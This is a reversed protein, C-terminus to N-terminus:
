NKNDSGTKPIEFNIGLVLDKPIIEKLYDWFCKIDEDKVNSTIKAGTFNEEHIIGKEKSWKSFYKNLKKNKDEYFDDPMVIRSFGTKKGEYKMAPVYSYMGNIQKDFTAGFYLRRKIYEINEEEHCAMNLVIDFYLGMNKLSDDLPVYYEKSSKIVFITDIVFRHNVRSGFLILSGNELAKLKPKKDMRCISYKFCDGFVFPDSNQYNKGQYEKKIKEMSPLVPTHLYQPYNEYQFKKNTPNIKEVNSPPEWECWFLLEGEKKVDNEIYNGKSKIYKRKHDSDNWKKYTKSYSDPSHEGGPHFFQVISPM